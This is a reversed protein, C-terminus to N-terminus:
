LPLLHDYVGVPLTGWSRLNELVAEAKKFLIMVRKLLETPTINFAEKTLQAREERHLCRSLPFPTPIQEIQVAPTICSINLM